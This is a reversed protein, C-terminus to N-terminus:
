KEKNMLDIIMLGLTACMVLLPWISVEVRNMYEACVGIVGGHLYRFLNNKTKM